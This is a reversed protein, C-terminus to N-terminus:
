ISSQKNSQRHPSPSPRRLDTPWQQARGHDDYRPSTPDRAITASDRDGRLAFEERVDWPLAGWGPSNSWDELTMTDLQTAREDPSSQGLDRIALHEIAEARTLTM